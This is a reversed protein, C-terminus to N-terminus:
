GQGGRDHHPQGAPDGPRRQRRSGAQFHRGGRGTGGLGRRRRGRGPDDHYRPNGAHGRDQSGNGGQDRPNGGHTGRFVEPSAGQDGGGRGGRSGGRLRDDNQHRGHGPCQPSRLHGRDPPTRNERHPDPFLAPQSDPPSDPYHGLPNRRDAPPQSPSHRVPRGP